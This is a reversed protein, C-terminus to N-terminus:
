SHRLCHRITQDSLDTRYRPVQSISPLKVHRHTALKNTDKASYTQCRQSNTNSSHKFRPPPVIQLCFEQFESAHAVDHFEEIVPKERFPQHGSTVFHRNAQKDSPYASSFIEYRKCHKSRPLRARWGRHVKQKLKRQLQPWFDRESEKKKKAKSTLVYDVKM